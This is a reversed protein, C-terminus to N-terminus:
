SMELTADLENINFVSLCINVGYIIKAIILVKMRVLRAKYNM